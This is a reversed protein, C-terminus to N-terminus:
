LSALGDTDFDGEARIASLGPGQMESPRVPNGVADMDVHARAAPGGSPISSIDVSKLPVSVGEQLEDMALKPPVPPPEAPAVSPPPALPVYERSSYDPRFIRAGDANEVVEGPVAEMLDREPEPYVEGQYEPPSAPAEPAPRRREVEQLFMEAMRSTIPFKVTGTPDRSVGTYEVAGDASFHISISDFTIPLIIPPTM